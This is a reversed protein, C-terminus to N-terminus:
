EVPQCNVHMAILRKRHEIVRRRFDGFDRPQPNTWLIEAMACARPWMKWMLDYENWTYEGWCCAEAGLVHGRAEEPIGKM